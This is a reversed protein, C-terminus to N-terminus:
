QTLRLAGINKGIEVFKATLSASNASLSAQAASTACESLASTLESAFAIVWISVGMQKTAACMMKFRQNHRAPQDDESTFTGTVRQDWKELGYTSYLTPGTDIIGDTMYIIQRSVPMSGYTEPNDGAFIGTRAILRAGWIMGNDHYTGGDPNLQDLYTSLATRSWPQLRKVTAVPCAVQPRSTYGRPDGTREYYYQQYDDYAAGNALFEVEPWYPKWKTAPDNTPVLAIDLDEASDPITYGSSATISSSTQREEICGAWISGPMTAPPATYTLSPDTPRLPQASQNPTPTLAGTVYTSVDYTMPQYTWDAFNYSCTYTTTKGSTVPASTVGGKGTCYAITKGTEVNNYRAVRSRYTYSDSVIYNPNVSRIADGANIGSSFPVVGYRLRLGATELKTQVSALEDYLALVAKRLAVIKTDTDASTAKDKMSGTTDLVLVIDTNVFDQKANCTVDLPLTNFGFMKMLTTKITTSATIVVTADPGQTISPVFKTTGWSEQPFNFNFFKTAETKVTDDVVGGVMARRGALVASDCAQQLRAQAMYARTMDVGSGLLAILPLMAAGTIALVNGRTDRALRTM